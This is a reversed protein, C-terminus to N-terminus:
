CDQIIITENSLSKHAHTCTKFITGTINQPDLKSSKAHDPIVVDVSLKSLMVLM